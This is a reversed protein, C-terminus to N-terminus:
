RPPRLAYVFVQPPATESVQVESLRRVEVTARGRLAGLSLQAADELAQADGIAKFVYPSRIPANDLRIEGARGRLVTRAVLRHANLALAEAGLNRLNNIIDELEFDQLPGDISLVIGPGRVGVTGNVVRLRTTERTLGEPDGQGDKLDAQLRTRQAELSFIEELLAANHRNLNNILLAITTNDQAELHRVVGAQSRLQVVVLFGVLLAVVSAVALDRLHRALDRPLRHM